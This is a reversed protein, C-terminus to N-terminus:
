ESQMEPESETEEADITPPNLQLMLAERLKTRVEQPMFRFDIKQKMNLNTENESFVRAGYKKPAMKENHWKLADMINRAKAVNPETRATDLIHEANMDARVKMARAYQKAYLPNNEVWYLFSAGSPYGDTRCISVLSEGNALRDVIENFIKDKVEIQYWPKYVGLPKKLASLRLVGSLRRQM